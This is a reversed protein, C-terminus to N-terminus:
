QISLEAAGYVVTTLAGGLFPAPPPVTRKRRTAEITYTCAVTSEPVRLRAPDIAYFGVDDFTALTLSLCDANATTAKAQLTVTARLDPKWTLVAPETAKRRASADGNFLPTIAPAAPIERAVDPEGVRSFVFTHATGAAVAGEYRFGTVEAASDDVLALPRGDVAIRDGGVLELDTGNADRDRFTAVARASTGAEVVTYDVYFGGTELNTSRTTSGCAIGAVALLAFPAARM